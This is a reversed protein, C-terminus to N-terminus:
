YYLEHMYLVITVLFNVLIKDGGMFNSIEAVLKELKNHKVIRDSYNM